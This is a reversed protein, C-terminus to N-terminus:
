PQLAQCAALEVEYDGSENPLALAASLEDTADEHMGEYWGPHRPNIGIAMRRKAAAIQEQKTM